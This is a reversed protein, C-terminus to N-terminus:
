GLRRERFFIMAEDLQPIDLNRYILEIVKELPVWVVTLLCNKIEALERWGIDYTINKFDTYEQLKYYYFRSKKRYFESPSCLLVVLEQDKKLRSIGADITRALQNRHLNFTTQSSIDSTFKVEVLILLNKAELVVDVHTNTELPKGKESHIREQERIYRVPHESIRTSLWELYGKPPRLQQEFAISVEGKVAECVKIVSLLENLTNARDNRIALPAFAYFTMLEEAKDYQNAFENLNGSKRASDAHEVWNKLKQVRASTFQKKALDEFLLKM